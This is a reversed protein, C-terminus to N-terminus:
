QTKKTRKKAHVEAPSSELPLEQIKKYYELQAESAEVALQMFMGYFFSDDFGEINWWSDVEEKGFKVYFMQKWFNFKFETPWNKEEGYLETAEQYMRQIELDAIINKGNWLYTKGGVKFTIDKVKVGQTKALAIDFDIM